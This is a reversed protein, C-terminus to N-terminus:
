KTMWPAQGSATPMAQAPQQYATPAATAPQVEQAPAQQNFAPAQQNFAPAAQQAPAPQQQPAPQQVPASQQWNQTVAPAPQQIPASQQAPQQWGQTPPGAQQAPASYGKVPAASLEQSGAPYIGNVRNSPGYEGKGPEIGIKADIPAGEFAECCPVFHMGLAHAYASVQKVAIDVATQNVNDLNLRDWVKRGKQNGSTVTLEMEAFKGGAKTPKTTVKSIVFTYTGAPLPDTSPGTNYEINTVDLNIMIPALAESM